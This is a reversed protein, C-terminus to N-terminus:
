KCWLNCLRQGDFFIKCFISVIALYVSHTM